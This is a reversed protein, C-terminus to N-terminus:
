GFTKRPAKNLRSKPRNKKVIKEIKKTSNKNNKKMLELFLHMEHKDIVGNKDDDFEEFMEEFVIDDFEVNIEGDVM